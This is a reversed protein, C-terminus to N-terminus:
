GHVLPELFLGLKSELRSEYSTKQKVVQGPPKAYRDNSAVPQASDLLVRWQAAIVHGSFKSAIIQRAQEVHRQSVSRDSLYLDIGNVWDDLIICDRFFDLAPTSTAIVPTGHYLALIARNASKALSFENMANPIIVVSSSRIRDPLSEITWEHYVSPIQIPKIYSEYMTENDSVVVLTFPNKKWAAQLDLAIGALDTVGFIGPSGSNGFWLVYRHQDNELPRNDPRIESVTISSQTSELETSNWALDEADWVSSRRMYILRTMSNLIRHIWRSILNTDIYELLSALRMVTGVAHRLVLLLSRTLRKAAWVAAYRLAWVAHREKFMRFRRGRILSFCAKSDAETEVGDPIIVVRSKEFQIEQLVVTMLYPSPVVIYDALKAMQKFGSVLEKRARKVSLAFINDCLDLIVPIELRKAIRAQIVDHMSFSKIFVIADIKDFFDIPEDAAYIVSEVGSRTLYLVPILCRYRASAISADNSSLKWAIM